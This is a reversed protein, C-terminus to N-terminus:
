GEKIVYFEYYTVGAEEKYREFVLTKLKYPSSSIPIEEESAEILKILSTTAQLEIYREAFRIEIEKSFGDIEFIAKM